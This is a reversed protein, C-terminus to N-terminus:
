VVSKRDTDKIKKLTGILEDANAAGACVVAALALGMLGLCKMTM